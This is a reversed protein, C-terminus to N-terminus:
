NEQQKRQTLNSSDMLDEEITSIIKLPEFEVRPEAEVVILSEEHEKLTKLEDCPDIIRGCNYDEEEEEVMESCVMDTVEKDILIGKRKLKLRFFGQMTEVLLDIM